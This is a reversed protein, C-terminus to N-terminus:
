RTPALPLPSSPKLEELRLLTVLRSAGRTSLRALVHQLEGVDRAVVMLVADVEGTVHDAAIVQPLAAIAEEFRRSFAEEHRALTVMLYVQLPFGAATSDLRATIRRLVGSEKLRRVRNLTAAPSLGVLRALEVNPRDADTQLETLLQVDIVDLSVAMECFVIEGFERDTLDYNCNHHNRPLYNAHLVQACVIVGPRAGIATGRDDGEGQRASEPAEGDRERLEAEVPEARAPEGDGAERDRRRQQREDGAATQARREGRGDRSRAREAVADHDHELVGADLARAHAVGRQDDTGHRHEHRGDGGHEAAAGAAAEHPAARQEREGADGEHGAAAPHPGREDAVQEDQERDRHRGREDHGLGVQERAAIRRSHGRDLEAGAAQGRQREGHDQLAGRRRGGGGAGDDGHQREREGAGHEREPQERPRLRAHGGLERAREHVELREDAGEGARDREVVHHSGCLDRAADRDEGADRDARQGAARSMVIAVRM